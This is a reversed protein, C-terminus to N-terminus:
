LTHISSILLPKSVQDVAQSRRALRSALENDMCEDRRNNTTHTPRISGVKGGADPKRRQMVRELEPKGLISQIGGRHTLYLPITSSM